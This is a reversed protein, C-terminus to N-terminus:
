IQMFSSGCYIHLHMAFFCTSGSEEYTRRGDDNSRSTRRTLETEVPEAAGREKDKGRGRGSWNKKGGRTGEGSGVLVGVPQGPKM